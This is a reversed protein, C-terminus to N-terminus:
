SIQTFSSPAAPPPFRMSIKGDMDHLCAFPVSNVRFGISFRSSLQNPVATHQLCSIRM